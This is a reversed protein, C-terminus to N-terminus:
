NNTRKVLLLRDGFKQLFFGYRSYLDIVPNLVNVKLYIPKSTEGFLDMINELLFTGVGHGRMTPDVGLGQLLIREEEEIVHAFGVLKSRYEAILITDDDGVHVLANPFLSRIFDKASDMESPKIARITIM